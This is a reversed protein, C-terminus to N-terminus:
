RPKRLGTIGEMNLSNYIDWKIKKSYQKSLSILNYIDKMQQNSLQGKIEIDPNNELESKLRTYPREDRNLICDQEFISDEAKFVYGTKNHIDSTTTTSFHAQEPTIFYGTGGLYIFWRPKQPGGFQPVPFNNWKFVTGPKM